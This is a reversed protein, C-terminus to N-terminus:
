IKLGPIDLGTIDKAKDAAIEHSHKIARNLADKIAEELARNDKPTGQIKVDKVVLSGNMTIKVLGDSSSTEFITSDLEERLKQINKQMDLLAKM